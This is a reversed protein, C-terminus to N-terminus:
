KWFKTFKKFCWQVTSKNATRPDFANNMNHTRKVAKCGIKSEFLFVVWIQKKDLM